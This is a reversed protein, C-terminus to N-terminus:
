LIQSRQLVKRLDKQLEIAEEVTEVSKLCDDVYFNRYVTDIVNKNFLHANDEATKRLIYSCVSPSSTAGFLHVLMKFDTPDRTM